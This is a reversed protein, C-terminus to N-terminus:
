SEVRPANIPAFERWRRNGNLIERIDHGKLGENGQCCQFNFRMEECDCGTRKQLRGVQCRPLIGRQDM